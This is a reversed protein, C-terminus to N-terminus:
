FAADFAAQLEPTAEGSYGCMTMTGGEATILYQGGERFDIQGILAAHAGAPISLVVEAASGGAYWRDVRLVVQGDSVSTATGAFAPSMEALYEVTLPLCSSLATGTDPLDLEVTETGGRPGLIDAAIVVGLVALALAGVVAAVVALRRSPRTKSPIQELQAHM